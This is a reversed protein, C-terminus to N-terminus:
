VLTFVAEVGVDFLGVASEGDDLREAMLGRCALLEAPEVIVDVLGTETGLEEGAQHPRRRREDAVQPIDNDGDDTAQLHGGSVDRKAVNLREDM